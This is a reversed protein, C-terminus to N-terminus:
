PIGGNPIKGRDKENSPAAWILSLVRVQRVWRAQRKEDPVIIRFPGEEPSLPKGDRKTAVLIVHDTYNSDFEPLAFVARYEDAAEVLLYMTMLHGHLNDRFNFGAAKIVNELSVGSYTISQGGQARVKVSQQPWKDMDARQLINQTLDPKNGSPRRVTLASASTKSEAVKPEQTPPQASLGASLLLASVILGRRMGAMVRFKGIM